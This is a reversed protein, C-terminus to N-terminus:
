RGVGRDRRGRAPRVSRAPHHLVPKARSATRCYRCGAPSCRRSPRGERSRGPDARAAAAAAREGPAPTYQAPDALRLRRRAAASARDASHLRQQRAPPLPRRRQDHRCRGHARRAAGVRVPDARLGPRHRAAPRRFRRRRGPCLHAPRPDGSSGDGSRHSRSLQGVLLVHGRHRRPRIVQYDRVGGAASAFEFTARDAANVKGAALIEDLALLRSQLFRAWHLAAGTAESKLLRYEAERIAFFGVTLALAIVGGISLLLRKDSAVLPLLRIVLARFRRRALSRVASHKADPPPM